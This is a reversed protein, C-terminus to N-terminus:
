HDMGGHDGAGDDASSHKSGTVLAVTGGVVAVAVGWVWGRKYWPFKPTDGTIINVTLRWAHDTTPLDFAGNENDDAYFDDHYSHGNILGSVAISYSASPISSVATRDVEEGNSM